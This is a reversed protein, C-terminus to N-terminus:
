MGGSYISHAMADSVEVFQRPGAVFSAVGGTRNALLQLVRQGEGSTVGVGICFVRMAELNAQLKWTAEPSSTNRGDSIVLLVRNPNKAIRTLHGAAVGVADFLAAGGQPKMDVLADQLLRPMATIDQVFDLDNGYALIFAEDGSRLHGLMDILGRVIADHGNRVAASEVVIGLSVPGITSPNPKRVVAEDLAPPSRWEPPIDVDPDLKRKKAAQKGKDEIRPRNSDASATHNPQIKETPQAPPTTTRATTTTAPMPPAGAAALFGAWEQDSGGAELYQRRGFAAIEAAEPTGRALKVARALLLFGEQQYDPGSALDALALAYADPGSDPNIAIAQRLYTQATAYDKERLAAYGRAGELMALTRRQIAYGELASIGAPLRSRQYAALGHDATERLERVLKANGSHRLNEARIALAIVNDPGCALVQNAANAASTFNGSVLYSWALLMLADYQLASRPHATIFNELLGAREPAARQAAAIYDRWDANQPAGIVALLLVTFATLFSSRM